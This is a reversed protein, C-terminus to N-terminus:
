VNHIGRYKEKITNLYEVFEKVVSEPATLKAKNGFGLLWGFFQDSIEVEATVTFHGDDSRSYNADKTGFRDVVADLLPNIFRISVTKREGGFMSFVRKTYPRLDIQFFADTVDRPKKTRQVDKM